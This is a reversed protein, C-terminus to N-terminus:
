RDNTLEELMSATCIGQKPFFNSIKERIWYPEDNRLRQVKNSPNFRYRYKLIRIYKQLEESSEESSGKNSSVNNSSDINAMTATTSTSSPITTPHLLGMTGKDKRLINLLLKYMWPHRDISNSTTAAVWMQWDLRYHYPSIFKPRKYVNGPKAKFQYETWPGDFHAATEIVLEIREESVTGFAGYTNVLRLPDFSANMVQKNSCLNRVVPISLKAILLGFLIDLIHRPRIQSIWKMQNSSYAAVSASAVTKSSFLWGLNKKVFIDDLCLLAPVKMHNYGKIM